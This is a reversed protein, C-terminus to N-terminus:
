RIVSAVGRDGRQSPIMDPVIQANQTSSHLKSHQRMESVAGLYDRFNGEKDIGRRDGETRLEKFMKIVIRVKTPCETAM